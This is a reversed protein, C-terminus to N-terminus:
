GNAKVDTVEMSEERRIVNFRAGGDLIALNVGPPIMQKLRTTIKEITSHTLWNPSTYVLMDGPELHLMEVHQITLQEDAPPVARLASMLDFADHEKPM